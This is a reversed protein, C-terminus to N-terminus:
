VERIALEKVTPPSEPMKVVGSIKGSRPTVEHVHSVSHFHVCKDKIWEKARMTIRQVRKQTINLLIPKLSVSPLECTIAAKSRTRYISKRLNVSTRRKNDLTIVKRELTKRNSSSRCNFNSADDPVANNGHRM